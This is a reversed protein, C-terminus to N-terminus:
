RHSQANDPLSIYVKLMKQKNTKNPSMEPVKLCKRSKKENKGGALNIATEFLSFLFLRRNKKWNM